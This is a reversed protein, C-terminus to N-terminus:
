LTDIAKVVAQWRPTNQLESMTTLWPGAKMRTLHNTTQHNQRELWDAVQKAADANNCVLVMDCGAALASQARAEYDGAVSAGDMSLDDSFIIGEFKLQKRLVTQLWYQSFGAPQHDVESYIVHAPMVADLGQSILSAFPQIDHEHIASMSRTDIPIDIHSDAEVSGHGPFHKGTSAMGAEKMGGMLAGALEKIVQTSSSFARDGIVSSVGEDVDLVPAFTFDIDFARLEAAMLWGVERTLAKAKEEDVRYLDGLKRMAPLRTFGERFRQVRGGEHDVAILIDPRVQRIETVLRSLQQLSEFNRTFLIIGGVCARALMVKEEDTLRTGSVDLM